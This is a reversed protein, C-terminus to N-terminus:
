NYLSNTILDNRLNKLYALRNSLIVIDKDIDEIKVHGFAIDFKRKYRLIEKAYDRSSAINNEIVRKSHLATAHDRGFYGGVEYQTGCHNTLAFYMILQRTERLEQKRSDTHLAGPRIGKDKCIIYEIEQITM